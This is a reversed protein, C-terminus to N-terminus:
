PCTINGSADSAYDTISFDKCFGATASVASNPFPFNDGYMLRSYIRRYLNNARGTSDVSPMVDRFKVDPDDGSLSIRFSTDNYLSTLRIFARGSDAAVEKVDLHVKCAYKDNNYAVSYCLAASPINNLTSSNKGREYTGLNETTGLHPAPSNVVSPKLFRTIAANSDLSDLDVLDANDLVSQVRLMAPYTPPWAASTKRPLATVPNPGGPNSIAAVSGGAYQSGKRMWEITIRKFNKDARLPIAISQGELLDGVVDQTNRVVVVCTYAQDLSLEQEDSSKIVVHSSAASVIGSEQVTDCEANAIAICADDTLENGSKRCERLVRKADEVGAVASDYASQSLDNNIAQQQEQVMLRVFGVTMVMFLLSAFMVIFISVLGAQKDKMNKMNSM